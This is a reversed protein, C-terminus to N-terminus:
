RCPWSLPYCHSYIPTPFYAYVARGDDSRHFFCQADNSHLSIRSISAVLLPIKNQYWYDLGRQRENQEQVRQPGTVQFRTSCYWRDHITVRTSHCLGLETELKAMATRLVHHGLRMSDQVATGVTTSELGSRILVVGAGTELKVVGAGTELKVVAAGTELKVVGAGTELKVVGAGTELKVVGVGTELKM